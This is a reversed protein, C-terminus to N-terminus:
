RSSFKEILRDLTLSTTSELSWDADSAAPGIGVSYFGATNLATIGSAADEIGACNRINENLSEAATIFIEPDPKGKELSAPNVIVDFSDKLNLREIVELANRSASALAIKIGASQLEKIFDAIGPLIDEPTIRGIFEKYYENKLNALRQKEEATFTKGAHDLIIEFSELRGVGRLKENIERSFDLGLEDSLRQWALYHYEATDTVVGDLDFIVAKLVPKLSFTLPNGQQICVEEGEHCICLADGETLTYRVEVSSIDVSLACKGRKLQFALRSWKKPLKPTFSLKGDYDRLGAFGYVLSLWTGGMAAIHVGDSVNSNIDDLDMRATKNFYEYADEERGLEAAMIGQICPSLSSDGTTLPNYYLYNRLKQVLSFRKGLLFNSLVVDPQKLVQHRYIVLPHFHLLLPYLSKDTGDFDWKEKQMFSDDQSHVSLNSDYPIFIHEAAQRWLRLTETTLNVKKKIGEFDAPSKQQLEDAIQLAYELHNKVMLNTFLNNNVIATYEDPGTVDNIKFLGDKEDFFGLSLWLKATEFIIEAGYQKLFEFDETANVYKQIGYAIDANIHYQATGAPFYASAEEGNITRWPYLAGAENMVSARERACDLINYRYELLNSAIEPMTYIFFPLVYIETDWFYHGEYGEGSLGKAAINRLGDRGASQYLSFLNFRIGQQLSNDGEIFIDASRWFEAVHRKQEELFNEAGFAVSKEIDDMVRSRIRAVDGEISSHCCIYKTFSYECGSQADTDFVFEFRDQLSLSQSSFSKGASHAIGYGLHLGSNVTKQIVFAKTGETERRLCELPKHKFGTGIRPDNKDTKRTDPDIYASSIIKINGATELLTVSVHILAMHQKEFSVCRRSKFLVKQGDPSRWIVKRKVIGEKLLLQRKYEIISGQEPSFLEDNILIKIETLDPLNLMMQKKDPFGYASEAYIQPASEYFGNIFTGKHAGGYDRGTEELGGRIGLYGNGLFFLSANREMDEAIYENETILWDEVPFFTKNKV